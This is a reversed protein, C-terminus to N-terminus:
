IKMWQALKSRLKEDMISWINEDIKCGKKILFIV